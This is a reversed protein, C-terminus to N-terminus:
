GRRSRIALLMVVIVVSFGGALVYEWPRPLRHRGNGVPGHYTTALYFAPAAHSEPM